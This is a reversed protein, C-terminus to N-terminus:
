DKPSQELLDPTVTRTCSAAMGYIHEVSFNYSDHSKRGKGELAKVVNELRADLWNIVSNDRCVM